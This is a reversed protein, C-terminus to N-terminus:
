RPCHRSGGRVRARCQTRGSRHEELAHRVLADFPNEAKAYRLVRQECDYDVFFTDGPEIGLRERLSRPTTLRRKPDVKVTQMAAMPGPESQWEGYTPFGWEYYGAARPGVICGAGPDM